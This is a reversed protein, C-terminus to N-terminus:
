KHIKRYLVSRHIGLKEATKVMSGGCEDMIQRIYKQEADYMFDKLTDFVPLKGDETDFVDNVYVEGDFAAQPAPTFVLENSGSVVFIREIVNRLERINGPWNHKIMTSMAKSGIYKHSGHKENLQQLFYEALPIIDDKRMRLPPIHLEFVNLRYYLDERFKKEAILTKLDANTACIIRVDIPIDKIGGVRRIEKNELARLLKAQLAFPMEGIEDLFITGGKAAEFLGIKGNSLAGTFAGKEYGFLESELLSEPIAACNIGIYANNARHSQEHILHSLLDKGTGSEGLIVVNSDTPAIIKINDLVNNMAVSKAVISSQNKLRLYDLERQMRRNEVREASLIESWEESHEHSMNNTVVMSIKGDKDFVPISHSINGNPVNPNIPAIIEERSEMCMLVTSQSYVGDEMLKRVDKGELKEISAGLRDAAVDNVYIVKGTSDTIFISEAYYNRMVELIEDASYEEKREITYNNKM